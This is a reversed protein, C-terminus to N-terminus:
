FEFYVNIIKKPFAVVLVDTHDLHNHIPAVIQSDICVENIPLPIYNEAEYYVAKKLDEEKMKPMKIVELFGKEEPLSCVVYKTKLKEGKVESVGKKIIKVLASKDKIEGNSVIGPSIEQEGFSVLSFGKRRRKKLKIIRLSLDSINLGFYEPKLTLFDLM